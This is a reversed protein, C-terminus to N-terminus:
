FANYFSSEVLFKLKLTTGSHGGSIAETSIMKLKLYTLWFSNFLNMILCLGATVKITEM